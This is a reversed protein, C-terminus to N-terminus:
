RSVMFRTTRNGIKIFYIGNSYSSTNLEVKHHGNGRNGLQITELKEGLVSFIEIDIYQSTRLDFSVYTIDEAPNPYVSLSNAVSLNDEIGTSETLAQNIASQIESPNGAGSYNKNFYVKHTPGGVVVVKPMGDTGYDSMKLSGNSFVSNASINNQNAWSNLSICNTNGYDDSLYYLVQGPHSSSYSKAVNSATLAPGACSFCPMVWTIVVVKGQDLEGFLHQPSGSCDDLTFDTAYSQSFGVNGIFASLVFLIIKKM